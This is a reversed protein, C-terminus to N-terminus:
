DELELKRFWGTRKDYVLGWGELEEKPLEPFQTWDKKGTAGPLVETTHIAIFGEEYILQYVHRILIEKTKDKM